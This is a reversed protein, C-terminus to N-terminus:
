RKAIALGANDPPFIQSFLRCDGRLQYLLFNQRLCDFLFHFITKVNALLYIIM